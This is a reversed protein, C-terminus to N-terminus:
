FCFTYLECKREVIGSITFCCHKYYFFKLICLISKWLPELNYNNLNLSGITDVPESFIVTLENASTVTVGSVYPSQTDTNIDYVSNIMGPTGGAANESATWNTSPSCINVPDIKELSWGGDDKNSDNYWSSSYIVKDIQNGFRDKLIITQGGNTIDPFSVVGLVNGYSQMTAVYTDKCLILYEGAEIQCAPLTKVTTGFTYTWNTIDVPVDTTNYLEVYEVDPLGVVPNPDAMIENIVIDFPVPWYVFFGHNQAVIENGCLDRIGSINIELATNEVFDDAFTLYVVTTNAPSTILSVPNVAPAILKYNAAVLSTLTDVRESFTVMLQNETQVSISLVTPPANDSNEADVSNITGPTGGNANNSAIWNSQPSCNNLPDIKELSWGGAAKDEDQYWSDSYTVRDIEQTENDRIVITQGTNTITPFSAIGLTSGYDDFADVFTTNCLIVYGGAALQYSPLTKTTSGITYTWGTLDISYATTNYLEVYEADPLAVVPNPDAMIENIVVM